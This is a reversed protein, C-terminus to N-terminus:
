LVQEFLAELDNLQRLVRHAVPSSVPQSNGVRSPSLMDMAADVLALDLSRHLVRVGSHQQMWDRQGALFLSQLEISASGLRRHGYLAEIEAARNPQHAFAIAQERDVFLGLLLDTWRETDRRLRESATAWEAQQELGDLLGQLCQNRAELHTRMASMLMALTERDAWPSEAAIASASASVIRMLPETLLVADFLQQRRDGAVVKRGRIGAAGLTALSVWETRWTEARRRYLIWFRRVAQHDLPGDVGAKM